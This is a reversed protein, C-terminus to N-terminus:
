YSVSNDKPHTGESHQHRPVYLSNLYRLRQPSQNAQHAERPEGTACEKAEAQHLQRPDTNAKPLWDILAVYVGERYIVPVEELRRRQVHKELRVERAM